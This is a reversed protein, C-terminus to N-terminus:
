RPLVEVEGILTGDSGRTEVHCRLRDGPHAIRMAVTSDDRPERHRLEERDAIVRLLESAGYRNANRPHTSLVTLKLTEGDLVEAVEAEFLDSM